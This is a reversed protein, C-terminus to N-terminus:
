KNDDNTTTYYTHRKGFLAVSTIRPMTEAAIALPLLEKDIQILSEHLQNGQVDFLVCLYSGAKLQDGAVVYRSGAEDKQLWGSAKSNSKALQLMETYPAADFRFMRASFTKTSEASIMLQNPSVFVIGEAQVTILNLLDLRRHYGGFFDEEDFGYFLWVFPQWTKHAYGILALKKNESDYTAGTILGQSNFTDILEAVYNGPKKPLRYLKTQQDGRNKSFLYLYEKGAVMAECDFNNSDWNREFVTQDPFRFHIKEAEVTADGQAPIGSLPFRYVLLDKRTAANNGFDGAYFYNEDLTVDEWDRNNSNALAIRQVIKGQVTDMGYLLADGGSDNHTWLLGNYFELGSTEEMIKDLEFLFPPNYVTIPYNCAANKQDEAPEFNAAFPDACQAQVMGAHVLLLVGVGVALLLRFNKM